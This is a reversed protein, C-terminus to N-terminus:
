STPLGADTLMKTAISNFTVPLAKIDAILADPIKEVTTPPELHALYSTGMGPQNDLKNQPDYVITAREFRQTSYSYNDPTTHYQENETPLGIVPLYGTLTLTRYLGLNGYQIVAGTQKSTWHNDDNATFWQDFDPSGPGYTTNNVPQTGGSTKPFAAYVADLLGPNAVATDYSWVSIATHGQGAAAGSIAVPDNAGFEQTLDVTPQLWTAGNAGFEGWFTALYNNYQQPMFVTTCPALAAIVGQWNQLSPDAWTSVMFCGQTGQLKSCVLNAWDVRGNYEEEMDACFIGGDNLYSRMIEIETNIAGFKNGYCYAYPIAGVGEANIANKISHWGDISFWINGGDAVKVLLCDVDHQKAFQAAQRFQDLSWSYTSIGLFLLHQGTIQTLEQPTMHM